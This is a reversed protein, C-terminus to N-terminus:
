SKEVRLVLGLVQAMREVTDITPSGQGALFRQATQLSIGCEKALVHARKGQKEAEEQIAKVTASIYTPPSRGPM